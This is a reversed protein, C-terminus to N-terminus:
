QEENQERALYIEDQNHKAWIAVSRPFLHANEDNPWAEGCAELFSCLSDFSEVEDMQAKVGGSLDKASHYSGDPLTIRYRYDCRGTALNREAFEVSVKAGAIIKEIM